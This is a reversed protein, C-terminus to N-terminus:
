YSEDNKKKFSFLDMPTWSCLLFPAFSLQSYKGQIATEGGQGTMGKIAMEDETMRLGAAAEGGTM